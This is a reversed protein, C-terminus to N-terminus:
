QAYQPGTRAGTRPLNGAPADTTLVIPTSQCNKLPVTHPPATITVDVNAQIQIIDGCAASQMAAELQTLTFNGGSARVTITAAQVALPHLVFLIAALLKKM